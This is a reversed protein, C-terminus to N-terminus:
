QASCGFLCLQGPIQGKFALPVPIGYVEYLVKTAVGVELFSCGMDLMVRRNALILKAMGGPSVEVPRHPSAPEISYTGTRRISPLVDHTVWRKFDKAGPKDSRLIVSYLGPENVIIMNQQGSPTGMLCAGKEDDDLRAAVNSPKVLGLVDCIDKLVFWPEGDKQIARVQNDQYNFIKLEDM